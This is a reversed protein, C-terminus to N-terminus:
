DMKLKEKHITNPLIRIENKQVDNDLEELVVLQLSDKEWQITKDGKVFILQGYTSQNIQPSEIKSWQDIRRNKHWYWVTTIVTAKYYLWFDSLTTGGAENKQRLVAKAIKHKWVFQSNKQELETFFAMPLKIPTASFRYIAKPPLAM